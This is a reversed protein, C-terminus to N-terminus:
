WGCAARSMAPIYLCHPWTYADDVHRAESAIGLLDAVDEKVESVDIQLAEMSDVTDQLCSM